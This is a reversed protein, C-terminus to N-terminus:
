SIIHIKRPRGGKKGNEASTAAKRMTRTAGGIRGVSSLHERLSNMWKQTGFIGRLLNPVFMDEDLSNWRLYLGDAAIEVDQIQEVTAGAFIQMKNRPIVAAAGSQLEITLRGTRRNYSVSEAKQANNITEQGRETAEDFQKDFTEENM